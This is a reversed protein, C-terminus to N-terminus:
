GIVRMFRMFRFGGDSRVGRPPVLAKKDQGPKRHYEVNNSDVRNIAEELFAGDMGVLM